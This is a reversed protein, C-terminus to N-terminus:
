HGSSRARACPCQGILTYLVCFFPLVQSRVSISNARIKQLSFKTAVRLPCYGSLKSSSNGTRDLEALNILCTLDRSGVTICHEDLRLTFGIVVM